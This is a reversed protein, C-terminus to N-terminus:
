EVWRGVGLLELVEGAREKSIVGRIDTVMGASLLVIADRNTSELTEAIQALRYVEQWSMPRPSDDSM